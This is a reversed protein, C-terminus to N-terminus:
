GKHDLLFTGFLFTSLINEKSKENEIKLQTNGIVGSLVRSSKAAAAIHFCDKGEQKGDCGAYGKQSSIRSWLTVQHNAGGFATIDTNYYIAAPKFRIIVHDMVRRFDFDSMARGSYGDYRDNRQASAWFESPNNIKHNVSIFM